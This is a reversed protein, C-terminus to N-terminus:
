DSFNTKTNEIINIQYLLSEGEYIEVCTPIVPESTTRERKIQTDLSYYCGYGKSCSTFMLAALTIITATFILQKKM